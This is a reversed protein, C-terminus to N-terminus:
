SAKWIQRGFCPHYKRQICFAFGIQRWLNAIFSECSQAWSTSSQVSNVSGWQLRYSWPSDFHFHWWKFKGELIQILVNWRETFAFHLALKADCIRLSHNTLSHEVQLVWSVTGLVENCDIDGPAILTSIGDNLCTKLSKSWFM